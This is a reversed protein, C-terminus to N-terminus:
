QCQMGVPSPQASPDSPPASATRSKRGSDPCPPKLTMIREKLVCMGYPSDPAYTLRTFELFAGIQADWGESGCFLPPYAATVSGERAPQFRATPHRLSVRAQQALLTAGLDSLPVEGKIATVLASFGTRRPPGVSIGASFLFSPTHM